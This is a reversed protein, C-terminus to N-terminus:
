ECLQIALEMERQVRGATFRVALAFFVVGCFIASEVM